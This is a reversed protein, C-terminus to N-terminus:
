TRGQACEPAGGPADVHAGPACEPAGGPADVHAVATSAPAGREDVFVIRYRNVRGPHKEVVILGEQVLANIALQAAREKIGARDAITAVSPWCVNEKNAHSALVGFVAFATTGVIPLADVARYPIRTYRGQAAGQTDNM